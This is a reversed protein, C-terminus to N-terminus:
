ESVIELMAPFGPASETCGQVAAQPKCAAAALENQKAVEPAKQVPVHGSALRGNKGDDVVCFSEIDTNGM